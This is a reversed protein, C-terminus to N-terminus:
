HPAYSQNIQLIMMHTLYNFMFTTCYSTHTTHSGMAHIVHAVYLPLHCMNHIKANKLIPDHLCDFPITEVM